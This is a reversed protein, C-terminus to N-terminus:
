ELSNKIEAMVEPNEDLFAMLQGGGMGVKNGRIKYVQGHQTLLNDDSELCKKKAAQITPWEAREKFHVDPKVDSEDGQGNMTHVIEIEEEDPDPDDSVSVQIPPTEALAKEAAAALEPTGPSSEVEAKKVAIYQEEPYLKSKIAEYIKAGDATDTYRVLNDLASEGPQGSAIAGGQSWSIVNVAQDFVIINKEIAQLMHYKKKTEPANITRIFMEPNNRARMLLDWKIADVDRDTNIHFAASVSAMEETDMKHILNQVSVSDVEKRYNERAKADPDFLEFITERDERRTDNSKNYNCMDLYKMLNADTKQVSKVGEVFVIESNRVLDDAAKSQEDRYISREGRVYRITRNSNTAEDYIEDVIPVTEIPPQYKGVLRYTKFKPTQM